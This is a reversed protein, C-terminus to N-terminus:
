KDGKIKKKFLEFKHLITWCINFFAPERSGAYSM